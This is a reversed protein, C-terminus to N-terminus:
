SRMVSLHAVIKSRHLRQVSPFHEVDRLESLCAAGEAAAIILSDESRTLASTRLRNTTFKSSAEPKLAGYSKIFGVM